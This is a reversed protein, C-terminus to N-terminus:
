RSSGPADVERVAVVRPRDGSAADGRESRFSARGSRGKARRIVQGFLGAQATEHDFRAQRAGHFADVGVARLSEGTASSALAGLELEAEALGSTASPPGSCARAHGMSGARAEIAVMRYVDRQSHTAVDRRQAGATRRARDDTDKTCRAPSESETDRLERYEVVVHMQQDFGLALPPQRLSHSSEACPERDVQIAQERPLPPQEVIAVM